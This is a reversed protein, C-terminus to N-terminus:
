TALPSASRAASVAAPGSCYVIPARAGREMSDTANRTPPATSMVLHPNPDGRVILGGCRRVL